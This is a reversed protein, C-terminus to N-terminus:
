STVGCQGCAYETERRIVNVGDVTTAVQNGRPGVVFTRKYPCTVNHDVMFAVRTMGPPLYEREM